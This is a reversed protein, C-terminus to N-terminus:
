EVRYVRKLKERADYGWALDHVKGGVRQVLLPTQYVVGIGEFVQNLDEMTRAHSVDYVYTSLTSRFGSAVIADLLEMDSTSYSAVGIILCDESKYNEEGEHLKLCGSKIVIEAFKECARAQLDVAKEEKGQGKLLEAFM